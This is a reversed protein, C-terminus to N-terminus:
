CSSSQLNLIEGQLLTDAGQVLRPVRLVEPARRARHQEVHGGGPVPDVAVVPPGVALLAVDGGHAVLAVAAVPPDEEESDEVDSLDDDSIGCTDDGSGDSVLSESRQIVTPM